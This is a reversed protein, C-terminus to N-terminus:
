EQWLEVHIERWTRRVTEVAIRKVFDSCLAAEPGRTVRAATRAQWALNRLLVLVEDSCLAEYSLSGDAPLEMDCRRPEIVEWESSAMYEIGDPTYFIEMPGHERLGFPLTLAMLAATDGRKITKEKSM